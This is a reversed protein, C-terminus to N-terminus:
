LEIKEVQWGVSARQSRDLLAMAGRETRYWKALCLDHTTDIDGHRFTLYRVYRVPLPLDSRDEFTSKSVVYRIKM